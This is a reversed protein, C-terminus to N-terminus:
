GGFVQVAWYTGDPEVVFAIGIASYNESMINDHHGQSEWWMQDINTSTYSMAVNEGAWGYREPVVGRLNPNHGLEGSIALQHAWDVAATVLDPDMTLTGRGEATRHENVFQLSRDAASTDVNADSGEPPPAVTDPPATTEPPETTTPATTTTTSSTTTSSTTTSAVTSSSSSTSGAATSPPDALAQVPPQGEEPGVVNLENEACASLGVLLVPVVM